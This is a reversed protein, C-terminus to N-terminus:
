KQASDLEIIKNEVDIVVRRYDRLSAIPNRDRVELIIHMQKGGAGTPIHVKAKATSANEIFVRGPYTGARRDLYLEGLAGHGTQVHEKLWQHQGEVSYPYPKWFHPGLGAVLGGERGGPGGYAYTQYNSCIWHIEPFEHCIWAGANDQAGNEFVRLKAVLTQIKAPDDKYQARLDWLAQALTNAGANVVVWIPRSDDKLLAKVIAESGPSSKDKGIDALVILRHRSSDNPTPAAVSRLPFALTLAVLLIPFHAANM